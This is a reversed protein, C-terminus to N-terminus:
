ANGFTDINWVQLAQSSLYDARDQITTDDWTEFDLYKSVTDIGEAYKKLGGKDGKGARKTQWDADRITSNLAQTIITLNGLTLLKRDRAAAAIKDGVFAWHNRWKKPMIHELSYKSIGLLQTSHLRRDRIKSEILYIVGIAYKNTLWSENFGAAVEDNPPMRNIKDEQNGIYNEFEQRSLIRNLILRESFLQNYNKTTSRTVLRRMIYSEIVEYLSNRVTIEPVNQEVFLLYPILTTTDLAFIIANLREIGPNAPLESEVTRVDFTRRFTTAYEKIEVLLAHKDGEYYSAIFRKYSDFLNEVRGFTLKDETRVGLTSDQIKIQLFSYFFLDSFTRKARGTTIESDWYEKTEDDKEFVDRWYKKYSLIDNRGFFYNKLLEDTTLRVGLSNITDFIQQEDEDAALDIGVFLLAFSVVDFDVKEPDLYDVFYQYARTINDNRDIPVIADLEMIRNYAEIDNHSHQIVTREDDLRFRKDFKKLSANKLCLVKMLISLTTLRQQGDVITRIDGIGSVAGTLQQKLIVSGMFYPLRTKSVNEVDELLREWQPEDWVYARQFFPIELIRSGNFIDNITRKGADM